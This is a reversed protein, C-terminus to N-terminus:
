EISGNSKRFRGIVTPLIRHLEYKIEYYVKRYTEIPLGAPDIISLEIGEMTERVFERLCFLNVSTGHLYNIIYHKHILEMTLILDAEQVLRATLQTSLHTSIDIGDDRCVEVASSSAGIGDAAYIGASEVQIFGRMEPPLLHRMLEGAM